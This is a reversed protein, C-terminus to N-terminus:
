LSHATSKSVTGTYVTSSCTMIGECMVFSFVCWRTCYRCVSVLCMKLTDGDVFMGPRQSAPRTSLGRPRMAPQRATRLGRHALLPHTGRVPFLDTIPGQGKIEKM